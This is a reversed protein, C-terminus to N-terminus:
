TCMGANGEAPGSAEDDHEGGDLAAHELEAAPVGRGPRRAEHSLALEEIQADGRKGHPREDGRRHKQDERLRQVQDLTLPPTNKCHSKCNISPQQCIMPVDYTRMKCSTVSVVRVMGFVRVMRLFAVGRFALRM